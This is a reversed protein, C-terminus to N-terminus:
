LGNSNLNQNWLKTIVDGRVSSDPTYGQNVVFMQLQSWAWSRCFGWPQNPGKDLVQVVAAESMGGLIGVVKGRLISTVQFQTLPLFQPLEAQSLPAVELEAVLKNLSKQAAKYSTTGHCPVPDNAHLVIEAHTISAPILAFRGDVDIQAWLVGSTAFSLGYPSGQTLAKSLPLSRLLGACLSHCQGCWCLKQWVRRNKPSCSECVNSFSSKKQADRRVHANFFDTGPLQGALHWKPVIQTCQPSCGLKVRM